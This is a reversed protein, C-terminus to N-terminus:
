KGGMGGGAGRAVPYRRARLRELSGIAHSPEKRLYGNEVLVNRRRLALITVGGGMVSADEEGAVDAGNGLEM